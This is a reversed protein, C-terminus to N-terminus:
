RFFILVAGVATLLLILRRYSADHIRRVLWVGTLLGLLIGPVLYFNIALTQPTITEWVFIHFPTKFLNMILFLWAATGIFQDKPIRMALFFLNAFGGALNGVMTAFGASLGMGGAFSLHSPVHESRKRDWWFMVAVNILIIVAMGQTFLAEPLDKGVYVGILVGLATWPLFRALYEWQTHRHYYTVAFIDGVILMPVIIGTSAKGGFVFAMIVVIAVDIGKVGAKAVGLIFAGFLALSWDYWQLSEM